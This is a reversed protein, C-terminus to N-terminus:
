RTIRGAKTGRPGSLVKRSQDRTGTSQLNQQWDSGHLTRTTSDSKGLRVLEVRFDDVRCLVCMRIIHSICHVYVAHVCM